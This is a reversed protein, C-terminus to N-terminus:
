QDFEYEFYDIEKRYLQYILDKTSDTYNETYPSYSRHLLRPLGSDEIKLHECVINFDEQLNEFRGIFDMPVEGAKNTIFHWQSFRKHDIKEKLFAEYSLNDDTIRYATRMTPDKMINAYWSYVRAWPNRVFTFKYYSEYQAKTLVPFFAQKLNQFATQPKGKKLLAYASLKLFRTQETLTEFDKITRHDQVDNILHNFHGLKKEISTGGTKFNHVFIFKRQKSIM